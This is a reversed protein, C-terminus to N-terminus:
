KNKSQTTIFNKTIEIKTKINQTIEVTLAEAIVNKFVISLVIGFNLCISILLNRPLFSFIIYLSIEFLCAIILYSKRRSGFIQYNDTFYGLIPKTLWPFIMFGQILQLSIVPLLLYEKYYYFMILINLDNLGNMFGILIIILKKGTIEEM